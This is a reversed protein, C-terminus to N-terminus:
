SNIEHLEELFEVLKKRKFGDTEKKIRAQLEPEIKSKHALEWLTSLTKKAQKAVSTERADFLDLIQELPEILDLRAAGDLAVVRLSASQDALAKKILDIITTKSMLGRNKEYASILSTVAQERKDPAFDNTCRVLLTMSNPAPLNGLAKLIQWYTKAEAEKDEAVPNKSLPRTTRQDLNCLRNALAVLATSASSDGLKEIAEIALDVLGSKTEIIALLDPLASHLKLEGLLQIAHRQNCEAEAVPEAASLNLYKRLLEATEATNYKQILSKSEAARESSSGQETIWGALTIAAHIRIPNPAQDALSVITPLVDALNLDEILDSNFTQKSAQLLGIVLLCGADQV